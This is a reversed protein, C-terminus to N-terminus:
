KERGIKVPHSMEELCVVELDEDRARGGGRSGAPLEWGATGPISLTLTGSGDGRGTTKTEAPPEMKWGTGRVGVLPSM